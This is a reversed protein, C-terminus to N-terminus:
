EDGAAEKDAETILGREILYTNVAEIDTCGSEFCAHQASEAMHKVAVRAREEDTQVKAMEEAIQRILAENNNM